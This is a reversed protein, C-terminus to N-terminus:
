SQNAKMLLYFGSMMDFGSSSGWNAIPIIVEDKTINQRVVSDFAGIIREDASGLLSVKFLESSLLTTKEELIPILAEFWPLYKSLIPILKSFRAIGLAMGSLFDDGSPTLGTGLGILKQASRNFHEINNQRLAWYLESVQPFLKISEEDKPETNQVVLSSTYGFSGTPTALRLWDGLHDLNKWVGLDGGTTDFPEPEWPLQSDVFLKLKFKEFILGIEPRYNVKSGIEIGGFYNGITPDFNITLPGRFKENSLFILANPKGKLFIGKSTNGWVEWVHQSKLSQFAELGMGASSFDHTSLIENEMAVM